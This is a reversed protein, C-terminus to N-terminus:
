ARVDVGPENSFGSGAGGFDPLGIEGIAEHFTLADPLLHLLDRQEVATSVEGNGFAVPRQPALADFFEEDPLRGEIEAGDGSFDFGTGSAQRLLQEFARFM